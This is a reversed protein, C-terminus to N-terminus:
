VVASPAAATAWREYEPPVDHDPIPTTRHRVAGVAQGVQWALTWLCKALDHRSRVRPVSKLWEKCEWLYLRWVRPVRAGDPRYRKALLVHYEAWRRAQRLSGWFDDRNRIAIVAERAFHLRTGALQVRYCYDNDATVPLSEDFEGVAFHLARRVGLGCGGAFYLYPPYWGRQLGDRQSDARGRQLWSRNLSAYDHACCVLEHRELAAATAALWGPQVVDDDDVFVVSEGRAARVGVNRVHGVGRRASADVVRLGPLRGRFTAAVERTRDTSGNDAVIVEWTAPDLEQAALAALAALQVGILQERNYAPVIVSLRIAPVEGAAGTAAVPPEHTASGPLPPPAYPAFPSRNASSQQQDSSPM